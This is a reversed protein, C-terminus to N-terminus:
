TQNLVFIRFLFEAWHLNDLSESISCGDCSGDFPSQNRTYQLVSDFDELYFVFCADQLSHLFTQSGALVSTWLYLLVCCVLGVSCIITAFLFTVVVIVIM